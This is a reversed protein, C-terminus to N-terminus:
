VKGLWVIPTPRYTLQQCARFGYDFFLSNVSSIFTLSTIQYISLTINLGQYFPPTFMDYWNQIGFTLTQFYKYGNPDCQLAIPSLTFHLHLRSPETGTTSLYVNNLRRWPQQRIRGFIAVENGDVMWLSSLKM